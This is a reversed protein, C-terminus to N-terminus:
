RDYESLAWSVTFSETSRCMYCDDNVIRLLASCAKTLWNMQEKGLEALRKDKKPFIVDHSVFSWRVLNADDHARSRLANPDFFQGASVRRPVAARALWVMSPAEQNTILSKRLSFAQFFFSSVEYRLSPWSRSSQFSNAM